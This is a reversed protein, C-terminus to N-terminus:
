WPNLPESNIIKKEAIMKDYAVFLLLLVFAGGIGAIGVPGIILNEAGTLYVLSLPGIGNFSGHLVAASLVSKAKVTVYTYIPSIVITALTMVFIGSIPSEPFNHGQLVLPAHWIGWVAGTVISVKWFGLTRLENLLFGRWGLEEGLAALANVTFGAVLGMLIFVIALTSSPLDLIPSIEELQEQPVGLEMLYAGFDTTFSVEPFLIGSLITTLLLLVPTLWAIIIWKLNIKTLGLDKAIPDKYLLQIIIASIAPSWMFIIILYLTGTLTELSVNSLYLVLFGTWAILFTFVLFYVVKRFNIKGKNKDM